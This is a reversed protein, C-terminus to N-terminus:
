PIFDVKKFLKKKVKYTGEAQPSSAGSSFFFEYFLRIEVKSACQSNEISNRNKYKLESHTRTQNQISPAAAMLHLDRCDSVYQNLQMFLWADQEFKLSLLNIPNQVIVIM